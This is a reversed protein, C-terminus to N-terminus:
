NNNNIQGQKVGTIFSERLVQKKINYVTLYFDDPQNLSVM